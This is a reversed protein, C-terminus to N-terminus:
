RWEPFKKSSGGREGKGWESHPITRSNLRHSVSRGWGGWVPRYCIWPRTGWTCATSCVRSKTLVGRASCFTIIAPSSSVKNMAKTPALGLRTHGQRHQLLLKSPARSGEWGLLRPTADGWCNYPQCCYNKLQETEIPNYYFIIENHYHYYKSFMKLPFNFSFSTTFTCYDKHIDTICM